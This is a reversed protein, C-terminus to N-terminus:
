FNLLSSSLSTKLSHCLIDVKSAKSALGPAQNLETIGLSSRISM